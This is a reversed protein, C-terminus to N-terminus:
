GGNWHGALPVDGAAGYAISLDAFGISNSNRLYFTQNTTSGYVGITVCGDGNWDGVIPIVPTPGYPIYLDAFGISNCNKLYFTRDGPRYVGITTISIEM